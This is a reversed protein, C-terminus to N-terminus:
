ALDRSAMNISLSRSFKTRFLPKKTNLSICNSLHLPDFGSQSQFNEHLHFSNFEILNKSRSKFIYSVAPEPLFFNMLHINLWGEEVRWWFLCYLHLLWLPEAAIVGLHTQKFSAEIHQPLCSCVPVLSQATEWNICSESSTAVIETQERHSSCINCYNIHKNPYIVDDNHFDISILHIASAGREQCHMDLLWRPRYCHILWRVVVFQKFRKPRAPQLVTPVGASMLACIDFFTKRTTSEASATDLFTSSQLTLSPENNDLCSFAQYAPWQLAVRGNGPSDPFAVSPPQLFPDENDSPSCLEPATSCCPRQHKSVSWIRLHQSPELDPHFFSRFSLWCCAVGKM